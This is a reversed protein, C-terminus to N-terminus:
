EFCHMTQCIQYGVKQAAQTYMGWRYEYIPIGGQERITKLCAYLLAAAVEEKRDEPVSSLVFNGLKWFEGAEAICDTHAKLKRGEFWAVAKGGQEKLERVRTQAVAGATEDDPLWGSYLVLADKELILIHPDVPATPVGGTYAFVSYSSSRPLGHIEDPLKQEPPLLFYLREFYGEEPQQRLVEDIFTPDYDTFYVFCRSSSHYVISFCTESDNALPREYRYGYGYKDPKLNMQKLLRFAEWYRLRDANLIDYIRQSDIQKM